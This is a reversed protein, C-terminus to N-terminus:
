YIVFLSLRARTGSDSLGKSDRASVVCTAQGSLGSDMDYERAM